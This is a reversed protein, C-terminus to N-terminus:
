YGHDVHQWKGGDKRVLIWNWDKYTTGPELSGQYDEKVDFTSLLVMVQDADYDAARSENEKVLEDGGYYIEKLTCGTWNADFERAIVDIATDIDEQSYIESPVEKIVLGVDGDILAETSSIVNMTSEVQNQKEATNKGTQSQSGSGGCASLGLLMVACMGLFAIRKMM